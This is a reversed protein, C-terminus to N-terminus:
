LEFQFFETLKKSTSHILDAAMQVYSDQSAHEVIKQIHLSAEEDLEGPIFRDLVHDRIRKWPRSTHNFIFFEASLLHYWLSSHLRMTEYGNQTRQVFSVFSDSYKGGMAEVMDETIRMPVSIRKPDDGLIYGFDVHGLLGTNSVLINELHRDGLGVTFALLCAGACSSVVRERLSSVTKASNSEMIHNLLTTSKRIDYLTSANPIMVLCGMSESIPFVDYAHVYVDTNLKSIWYGVLMALRDTRLDENKILIDLTSHDGLTCTVMLPRSSSAFRKRSVVSTVVRTPNWPLRVGDRMEFFERIYFYHSSKAPKNCLVSLLNVFAASAALDSRLCEPMHRVLTEQITATTADKQLNCEFWLAYILRIEKHCVEILGRWISSCTRRCLYVWWFMMKEHLAVDFTLWSAVVANAVEPHELCNGMGVHIIDEVSMRRRCTRSCLLQRCHLKDFHGITPPFTGLARRSRVACLAHVQWPTHYAFESFHTKLFHYEVDSYKQCPLKYQLGRYLSLITNVASNWEHNLIRLIFLEIFTVPMVALANVLWELESARRSKSACSACMRQVRNPVNPGRIHPRFYAPIKERYATCANCFVRGCSRCHHKRQILSFACRCEFCAHVREDPIWTSPIRPRITVRPYESRHDVRM